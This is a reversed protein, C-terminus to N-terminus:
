ENLLGLCGKRVTSRELPGLDPYLGGDTGLHSSRSSLSSLASSETNQWPIYFNM